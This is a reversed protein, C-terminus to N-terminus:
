GHGGGCGVGPLCGSGGPVGGPGANVGGSGCAMGNATPICGSGGQGGGPGSNTGGSGCQGNICGGGGPDDKFHDTPGIQYNTLAVDRGFANPAMDVAVFSGTALAAALTGAAAIQTFKIRIM